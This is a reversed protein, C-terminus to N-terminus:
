IPGTGAGPWQKRERLRELQCRAEEHIGALWTVDHYGQATPLDIAAVCAAMILQYAQDETYGMRRCVGVGQRVTRRAPPLNLRAM